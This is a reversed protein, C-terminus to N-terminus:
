WAIAGDFNHEQTGVTGTTQSSAGTVVVESVTEDDVISEIDTFGDDIIEIDKTAIPEIDGNEIRDLFVQSYIGRQISIYYKVTASKIKETGQLHATFLPLQNRQLSPYSQVLNYKFVRTDSPNSVSEFVIEIVPLINPYDSRSIGSNLYISDIKPSTTKYRQLANNLAEQCNGCTDCTREIDHSSYQAAATDAICVPFNGAKARAEYGMWLLRRQSSSGEKYSQTRNVTVKPQISSLNQVLSVQQLSQASSDAVKFSSIYDVRNKQTNHVKITYTDETYYAFRDNVQESTGLSLGQTYINASIGDRANTVTNTTDLSHTDSNIEGDVTFNKFPNLYKGDERKFTEKIEGTVLNKCFHYVKLPKTPIFIKKLAQQSNTTYTTKRWSGEVEKKTIDYIKIDFGYAMSWNTGLIPSYYVIVSSGAAVDQANKEPTIKEMMRSWKIFDDSTTRFEKDIYQTKKVSNGKKLKITAKIKYRTNPSLRNAPILAKTKPNFQSVRSSVEITSSGNLMKILKVNSVEITYDDDGIKFSEGDNRFVTEVKVYPLLSVDTSQMPYIDKLLELSSTSASSADDSDGIVYFTHSVSGGCCGASLYISFFTPNPTRFRIDSNFSAIEFWTFFVRGEIDINFHGSLDIFINRGYGVVADYGIDSKYGIGFGSDVCGEVGCCGGCIEGNWKNESYFATGMAFQDADIMLYSQASIGFAKATIKNEKTGLHVFKKSSSYYIQSAGYFEALPSDLGSVSYKVNVEGNLDLSFPSTTFVVSGGIYKDPDIKNLNCLISSEGVLTTNGNSLDVNLKFIGHWTYGTDNTGLKMGASVVINKRGNPVFTTNNDEVIANMGYAAGGGFGYISLPLPTLPIGSGSLTVMAYAMWYMKSNVNGIKFEGDIDFMNAIGLHLGTASFGNGYITDNEYWTLTGSMSLAPQTVDLSIQDVSYTGDSYVTVGAGAQAIELGLEGTVKFYLLDKNNKRKYGLGLEELSLTLGGLDTSAGSVDIQAGISSVRIGTKSIKLGEFEVSQLSELMDHSPQLNGSLEVWFNSLNPSVKVGTFNMKAFNNIDINPLEGRIAFQEIGNLGVTADFGLDLNSSGLFSSDKYDMGISGLISNLGAFTVSFKTVDLNDVGAINEINGNLIISGNLGTRNINFNNLTLSVDNWGKYGFTGGFGVSLADIDSFNINGSIGKFLFNENINLDTDFSWNINSNLLSLAAKAAEGTPTDFISSLDIYGDFRSLSIKPSTSTDIHVGLASLNLTVKGNIMDFNYGNTGWSAVITGKFGDQSVELESFTVSMGEGSSTNMLATQLVIDGSNIVVKYRSGVKQVKGGLGNFTITNDGNTYTFVQTTSFGYVGSSEYTLQIPEVRTEFLDGFALYGSASGIEVGGNSANGDMNSLVIRVDAEDETGDVTPEGLDYIVYQAGLGSFAINWDIGSSSITADDIKVSNVTVNGPLTYNSFDGTADFSVIPSSLNKLNVKGGIQSVNVVGNSDTFPYTGILSWTYIGKAEEVSVTEQVKNAINSSTNSVSKALNSRIDQFQSQATQFSSRVSSVTKTASNLIQNARNQATSQLAQLNVVTHTSILTGFDLSANINSVGVNVGDRNVGLAFTPTTGNAFLIKVQKQSWITIDQLQASVEASFGDKSVIANQLDIDGLNEFWTFYSSLNVKGQLQITPNSLDKLDILGSLQKLAISTNALQKANTFGWSLVGKSVTSVVAKADSILTGFDIEGSIQEIGLKLGGSNIALSFVPPTSKDFNLKVNKDQWIVLSDLGVSLNGEFGSKSIVANELGVSNVFKFIPYEQSNFVANANLTISPNTFDSFNVKGSLASLSISNDLLPYNGSLSWAYEFDHNIFAQAENKTDEFKDVIGGVDAADGVRRIQAIAGDLLQGFDINADLNDLGLKFGNLSVSFVMKPNKNFHLKVNKDKYIEIDDLDLTAEGSLGARSIIIRRVQASKIKAFTGGYQSLDANASFIIKPDNLKKLNLSGRMDSLKLKASSIINKSSKISWNYMGNIAQNAANQIPTLQAIAGDLLQGFKLKASGANLSFEVKTGVSISVSPNEDFSLVVNKEKYIDINKLDVSATASFGSKSIKANTIDIQNIQSLIGSYGSIKASSNFNIKPNTLDALDLKADITLLKVKDDILYLNKSMDFGIQYLSNVGDQVIQNISAVTNPILTGFDLSADFSDLGFDVTGGSSISFHVSPNSDQSFTLKVGKDEWIMLNDLLIALTASLGNKSITADSISAQKVKTFLGGYASMDATANFTIEPNSWSSLDLKGSLSSLKLNNLMVDDQTVIWTYENNKISNVEATINNLLTGFNLQMSGGSFGIDFGSAKISFEVTPNSTFELNVGKEQWIDVTGVNAEVSAELGDKSIKINNIDISNLNSFLDGYQSLDAKTKFIIKPNLVDNLDVQGLMNSFYINTGNILQKRATIGWQFIGDIQNGLDDRAMSLTQKASSLLSGFNIDADLNKVSLNVGRYINLVFALTISRFDLKVGKEQWINMSYANSYTLEGAIGDKNFKINELPLQGMSSIISNSTSTIYGSLMQQSLNPSFTLSDLHFSVGSLSFDIASNYSISGSIVRDQEIGLDNFSINLNADIGASELWPINIVGSGSIKGNSLTVNDGLSVIFGSINIQNPLQFEDDTSSNINGKTIRLSFEYTHAIKPTFAFEWEQHGNARSWTDGGDLSIEVYLESPKTKKDESELLGQIVVKGNQLDEPYFEITQQELSEFERGNITIDDVFGVDDVVQINAFLTIAVMLQILLAKMM